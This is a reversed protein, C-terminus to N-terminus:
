HKPARGGSEGGSRVLQWAGGQRDFRLAEELPPGSSGRGGVIVDTSLISVVFSDGERQVDLVRMDTAANLAGVFPALRHEREAPSLDPRATELL